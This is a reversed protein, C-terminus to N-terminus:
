RAGTDLRYVLLPSLERYGARLAGPAYQEPTTRWVLHAWVPRSTRWQPLYWAEDRETWILWHIRYRDRLAALQGEDFPARVAPRDLLYAGHSPDCVVIPESPGVNQKVWPAAAMLEIPCFYYHPNWSSTEDRAMRRSILAENALAGTVLLAAAVGLPARWAGGREALWVAGAGALALWLPLVSLLYRSQPASVLSGGALIALYLAFPLWRRWHRRVV